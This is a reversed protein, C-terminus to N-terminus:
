ETIPQPAGNYQANGSPHTIAQPTYIASGQANGGAVLGAQQLMAQWASLSIQSWDVQGLQQPTFGNCDPAQPTAYGGAVNPQGIKIQSAIIRALPSQYCCFIDKHMLCFGLFKQACYTGINQCAHLKRKEGLKFEENTCATLIQAIMQAIQYILYIIGIVTFVEGVIGAISAIEKAIALGLKQGLVKILLKQVESKLWNELESELGSILSQSAKTGAKVAVSSM